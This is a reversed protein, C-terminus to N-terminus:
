KAPAAVAPAAPTAPAAAPQEAAPEEPTSLDFQEEPLDPTDADVKKAAIDKDMQQTNQFLRQVVVATEKPALRRLSQYVQKLIFDVVMHNTNSYGTKHDKQRSANLVNLDQPTLKMSKMLNTAFKAISTKLQASATKQVAKVKAIQPTLGGAVGKGIGFGALTQKGAAVAGAVKQQIGGLIGGIQENVPEPSKGKSLESFSKM